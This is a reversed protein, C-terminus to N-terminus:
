NKISFQERLAVYADAVTKLQVPETGEIENALKLVNALEGGASPVWEKQICSALNEVSIDVNLPKGFINAVAKGLMELWADQLSKKLDETAVTLHLGTDNIGELRLPEFRQSFDQENVLGRLTSLVKNWREDTEEVKLINSWWSPQSVTPRQSKLDGRILDAGTSKMFDPWDMLQLAKRIDEPGYDDGVKDAWVALFGQCLISITPLITVEQKRLFAPREVDAMGSNLQQAYNILQRAEAATLIGSGPNIARWIREKANPPCRPDEGGNGGYYVTLGAQLDAAVGHDEFHRLCILVSPIGDLLTGDPKEIWVERKGGGPSILCPDALGEFSKAMVRRRVSERDVIAVMPMKDILRDM